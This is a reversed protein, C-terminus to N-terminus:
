ALVEQHAISYCYLATPRFNVQIGSVLSTMTSSRTTVILPEEIAHKQALTLIGKLEEPHDLIRDSWKVEAAFRPRQAAPDLGVIDVEMDGRGAKWRAYHLSASTGQHHLWQGWVATEALSGTADVDAGVTGFLAARVSTNTLYVKFTRERQLRKANDDLRHV